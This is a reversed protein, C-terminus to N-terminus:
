KAEDHKRSRRKNLKNLNLNRLFLKVEGQGWDHADSETAFGDQRKSVITKKSTVRRIVEATWGTNDQSVRIDYQKSKTM